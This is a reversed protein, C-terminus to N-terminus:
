AKRSFGGHLFNCEAGRDCRGQKWFKCVRKGKGKPKPSGSRDPHQLPDAAHATTCSLPLSVLTRMFWKIWMNTSIATARNSLGQGGWGRVGVRGRVGGRRRGGGAGGFGAIIGFGHYGGGGGGATVLVVRLWLGGLIGLASVLVAFTFFLPASLLSCGVTGLAMRKIEAHM